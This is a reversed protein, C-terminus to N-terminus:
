LLDSQGGGGGWFILMNYILLHQFSFCPARAKLHDLNLLFGLGSLISTKAGHSMVSMLFFFSLFCFSNKSGKSFQNKFFFCRSWFEQLECSCQPGSPKKGRWKGGQLYWRPFRPNRPWSPRRCFNSMRTQQVARGCFIHISLRHKKEDEM